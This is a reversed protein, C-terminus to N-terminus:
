TTAQDAAARDAAARDAAARHAEEADPCQSWPIGCACMWTWRRRGARHHATVQAQTRQDM